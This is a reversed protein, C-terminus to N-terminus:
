RPMERSWDTVWANDVSKPHVENRIIRRKHRRDHEQYLLYGDQKVDRWGSNNWTQFVYIPTIILLLVLSLVYDPPVKGTQAQFFVNIGLPLAICFAILWVFGGIYISLVPRKM